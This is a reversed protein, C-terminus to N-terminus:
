KKTANATSQQKNRAGGRVKRRGFNVRNNEHNVPFFAALMQQQARVAQMHRQFTLIAYGGNGFGAIIKCPINRAKFFARVEDEIVKADSKYWGDKAVYLTDQRIHETSRKTRAADNDNTYYYLCACGVKGCFAQVFSEEYLPAVSALPLLGPARRQVPAIRHPPNQTTNPAATEGLVGTGFNSVWGEETIDAWSKSPPTAAAQEPVPVVKAEAEPTPAEAEKSRQQRRLKLDQTAVDVLLQVEETKMFRLQAILAAVSLQEM